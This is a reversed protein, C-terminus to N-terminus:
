HAELVEQQQLGLCREDRVKMMEDVIDACDNFTRTKEMGEKLYGPHLTWGVVGAFYLDWVAQKNM